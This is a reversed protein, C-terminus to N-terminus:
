SVPKFLNDTQLFSIDYVEYNTKNQTKPSNDDEDLITLKGPIVATKYQNPNKSERTCEISFTYESQEERDMEPEVVLKYGSEDEKISLVNSESFFCLWLNRGYRVILIINRRLHVYYDALM